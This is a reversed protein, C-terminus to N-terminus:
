DTVSGTLVIKIINKPSDPIQCSEFRCAIYKVHTLNCSTQEATGNWVSISIDGQSQTTDATGLLNIINKQVERDYVKTGILGYMVPYYIAKFGQTEPLRILESIYPMDNVGYYGTNDATRKDLLLTITFTRPNISILGHRNATFKGPTATKDINGSSTIEFDVGKLRLAVGANVRNATTVQNSRDGAGARDVPLFGTDLIDLSTLFAM